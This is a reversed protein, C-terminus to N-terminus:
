NFRDIPHKTSLIEDIKSLIDEIHFNMCRIKEYPCLPKHEENFCPQFKCNNSYLVYHYDKRFLTLHGTYKHQYGMDRLEKELKKM